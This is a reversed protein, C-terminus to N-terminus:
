MVRAYWDIVRQGELAVGLAAIGLFTGFPLQYTSADQRTAKIYILGIVSGLVSGAILTLLAGRIGLFAGVMAMMKVDGLGLGEKHRLKEFLFGGLWLSGAPLVVGLAAEAMSLARNGLSIDSLSFIAHAVVDPVPVFFAFVLGIAIGGLTFEDPLIREEIDSFVLAVLIATLVCYKAAILTLGLHWAFYAFLLGTLLEVLPYRVSIRTGCHRCRARLALYSLVPINDYWAIPKECDPCRSRPRVVSLDRPWRHICVNLFSGILLGALLGLCAQFSAEAM